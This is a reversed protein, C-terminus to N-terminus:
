SLMKPYIIFNTKYKAKIVEIWKETEFSISAVGSTPLFDLAEDLYLNAFQTLTPNHGVIMLSDLEDRQSFIINFIEDRDVQYINPSVEIKEAPYNLGKAILSATERARKAHSCIIMDVTINKENLERVIRKTNNIGKELLPREVDPLDPFDWSAKAHRVIYLTKMFWFLFMWCGILLIWLDNM